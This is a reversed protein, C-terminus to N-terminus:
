ETEALRTGPTTRAPGTLERNLWARALTWDRKATGHSVGLADAVEKLTMGGFFRYEVGRAQRESMAELRSLADDLAILDESQEGTIEIAHDLPVREAGGGRKTSNRARAHDVLIRRMARSSMALFHSRDQWDVRHVDVLKVYAEHVLATTNLTHGSREGGMHRHAICRLEEYVLPLLEDLAEKRGGSLELLLATVDPAEPM